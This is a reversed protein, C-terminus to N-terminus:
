GDRRALRRPRGLGLVAIGPLHVRARQRAARAMVPDVELGAGSDRDAVRLRAARVQVLNEMAANQRVMGTYSAAATAILLMLVLGPALLLKPGIRLKSLM